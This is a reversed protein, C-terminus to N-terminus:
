PLSSILTVDAPSRLRLRFSKPERQEGRQISCVGCLRVVSGSELAPMKWGQGADELRAIFSIAGDQLVLQPNASRPVNQLLRAELTVLMGDHAGQLLIEEATTKRPVANSTNGTRRFSVEELEPSFDGLAPFGLVDVVDGPQLENMQPQRVRIGSTADQIFFGQAAIKLTVVGSVKARRGALRDPDFTAM